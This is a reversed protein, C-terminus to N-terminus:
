AQHFGGQSLVLGSLPLERFLLGAAIAHLLGLHTHAPWPPRAAPLCDPPPARLPAAWGAGGVESRPNKSWISIGMVGVPGDTGLEGLMGPVGVSFIQPVDGSSLCCAARRRGM